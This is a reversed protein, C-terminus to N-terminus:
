FSNASADDLVFEEVYIPIDYQVAVAIADSPRSDVEVERGDMKVILRAYFVNKRLDNVEVRVLEGGMAKVVNLILDHTLPREPHFKKIRRDIAAAEFIGIVMPFSREGDVEKLVIVQADTTEQIIIRSLEMRVM